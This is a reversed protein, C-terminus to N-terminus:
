GLYGVPERNKNYVKKKKSRTENGVEKELTTTEKKVLSYYEKKEAHTTRMRSLM